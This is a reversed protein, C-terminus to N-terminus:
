VREPKKKRGKELIWLVEFSKSYGRFPLLAGPVLGEQEVSGLLV